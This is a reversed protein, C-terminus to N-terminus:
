SYKNYFSVNRAVPHFEVIVVSLETFALSQVDQATSKRKKQPNRFGQYEGRFEACTSEGETRRKLLVGRVQAEHYLKKADRLLLAARSIQGNDLATEAGDVVADGAALRTM